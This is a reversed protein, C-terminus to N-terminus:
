TNIRTVVISLLVTSAEGTVAALVQKDNRQVASSRVSNCHDMVLEVDNLSILDSEDM